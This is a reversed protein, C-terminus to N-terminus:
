KYYISQVIARITQAGTADFWADAQAATVLNNTVPGGSFTVTQNNKDAFTIPNALQSISGAKLAQKTAMDATEIAFIPQFRTSGIFYGGVVKLGTSASVANTLLNTHFAAVARDKFVTSGYSVQLTKSTNTVLVTAPSDGTNGQPISLSWGPPYKFCEARASDCYTKWNATSVAAQPVLTTASAHALQVRLSRVQVQLTQVRASLARTRNHQWTYVGGTALLFVVVFMYAAVYKHAHRAHFYEGMRLETDEHMGAQDQNSSREEM